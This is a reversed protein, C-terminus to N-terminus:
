LTPFTSHDDLKPTNGMIGKQFGQWARVNKRTPNGDKTKTAMTLEKAIQNQLKKQEYTASSQKMAHIFSSLKSRPTHAYKLIFKHRMLEAASQRDEFKTTLCASIFDYFLSSCQEPFVLHQLDLFEAFDWYEERFRHCPHCGACLELLSIGLSWVDTAENFSGGSNGFVACAREPSMYLKTGLNVNSVTVCGGPTDPLPQSCGFDAVKVTEYKMDFMLNAPKVDTHVFRLGGHLHAFGKLSDHAILSIVNEPLPTLRVKAMEEDLGNYLTQGNSVKPDGGFHGGFIRQATARVEAPPLNSVIMHLAEASMGMREMLIHLNGENSDKSFYGNYLAVLNRHRNERNALMQLERVIANKRAQREVDAQTKDLAQSISIRKLAFQKGKHSVARVTGQSGSGLVEGIDLADFPINNEDDDTKVLTTEIGRQQTALADDETHGQNMLVYLNSRDVRFFKRQSKMDQVTAKTRTSQEAALDGVSHSSRLALQESPTREMTDLDGGSIMSPSSKARPIRGRASDEGRPTINAESSSFAESQVPMGMSPTDRDASSSLTSVLPPLGNGSGAPFLGEMSIFPSDLSGADLDVILQEVVRRQVPEEKLKLPQQASSMPLSVNFSPASLSPAARPRRLAM